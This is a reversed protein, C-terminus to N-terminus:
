VGLVIGRVYNQSSGQRYLVPRYFLYETTTRDLKGSNFKPFSGSGKESLGDMVTNLRSTLQTTIEAIEERRTVSAKDTKLALQVGEVNLETISSAIEGAERVAETNLEACHSAIETMTKDTLASHGYTLEKTDIKNRINTDNTAWVYTLKTNSDDSSYGTITTYEAESLASSQSPLYSLELVNQAPMYARVGSSLSELLVNIRQELGKSLTREQTRTMNFGLPLSVLLIIMIVLFSTFSVLKVNLSIGKQRLVVTKMKKEHPMIDGAILAHAELRVEVSERAVLIIGHIAFMMGTLALIFVTWLLIGGMQVHWCSRDVVPQWLPIYKYQKEIKITGSESVTFVHGTMYLGRDSHVLGICYSGKTLLRGLKIDSIRNDSLVTFQGAGRDLTLDYPATGDRDIYIRTISGDYTFGGGTVALTVDGFTNV